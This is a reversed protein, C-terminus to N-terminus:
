RSAPIATTTDTWEPTYAPIRRILEAAIQEFTLDDLEIDPLPM